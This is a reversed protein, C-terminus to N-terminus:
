KLKGKQESVHCEIDGVDKIRADNTNISYM